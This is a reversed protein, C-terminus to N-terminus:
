PSSMPQVVISEWFFKLWISLIERSDVTERVHSSSAISLFQRVTSPASQHFIDALVQVIHETKQTNDLNNRGSKSGYIVGHINYIYLLLSSYSINGTSVKGFYM